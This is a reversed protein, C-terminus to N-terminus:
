VPFCEECWAFLEDYQENTYPVHDAIRGCNPNCVGKAHFALCMPQGDIRSRPLARHQNPGDGINSRVDRCTATSERFPAFRTNFNVNNFVRPEQPVEVAQAAAAAAAAAPQAQPRPAARGPGPAVPPRPNPQTLGLARLFRPSALPQWHEENEIKELTEAFDPVPVPYPLKFQKKFWDSMKMAVRKILMAPFLRDTEGLVHLMAEMSTFKLLYANLADALEKCPGIDAMTRLLLETRRIHERVQFMRTPCEATARSMQQADSVSPATNEGRMMEYVHQTNLAEEVSTAPHLRFPQFGTKVSDPDVMVFSLGMVTALIAPTVVFELGDQQAIGKQADVQTQLLTLRQYKKSEAVLRFFSDPPLEELSGVGCLACIRQSMVPGWFNAVSTAANLERRQNDERRQANLDSRLGGLETAIANQAAENGPDGLGPFDTTLIRNRREIMEPDALIARPAEDAWITPNEGATTRTMNCRLFDLLPKCSVLWGRDVCIPYVYELVQRVTPNRGLAIVGQVFAPPLPSIRRTRVLETDGDTDNFPGMCRMDADGNLAAEVLAFTAVRVVPGLNWCADALQVIVPHNSILDGLQALNVNLWTSPERGLQHVVRDLQLYLYVLGDHVDFFATPIGSAQAGCALARVEAPARGAGGAPPLGYPDLLTEYEGNFPDNGSFFDGYSFFRRAPAAGPIAAM